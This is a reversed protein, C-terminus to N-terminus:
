RSAASLSKRVLSGVVLRAVFSSIYASSTSKMNSEGSSARVYMGIMDLLKFFQFKFTFSDFVSIVVTFLCSSSHFLTLFSPLKIFSFSSM